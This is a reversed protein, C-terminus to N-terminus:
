GVRYSIFTNAATKVTRFTGANGSLGGTTAHASPITGLGVLTHGVGAAVTATDAAAASLNILTWEFCDSVAMDVGADTLTGTPLTYTATAATAHTDTVIMTLLQAITLTASGVGATPTPQGFNAIGRVYLDGAVILDVEPAASIEYLTESAGSEIRITTAVASSFTGYVTQGASVVGVLAWMGPINPDNIKKYVTAVSTTQVAIKQSAPVSVDATGNAYVKLPTAM